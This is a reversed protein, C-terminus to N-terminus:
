SPRLVFVYRMAAGAGALLRLKVKVPKMRLTLVYDITADLAEGRAAADDLRQAVMYNNMCPAVVTFMSHGLVRHSSLGAMRSEPENYRRVLGAGDIGIVGFDLHDLAADDMGDILTHADLTDFTPMLVASM